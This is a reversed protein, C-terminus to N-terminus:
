PAFTRLAERVFDAVEARNRKRELSSLSRQRNMYRSPVGRKLLEPYGRDYAWKGIFVVAKPELLDLATRFHSNVCQDILRSGPAANDVTRCRVLNCYAIQDLTLGTESLPFYSGHVPWSPVFKRTTKYLQDYSALDQADRVRRLAATYNRDNAQLQQNPQSPNQGVLLVRTSWYLDGIFGPQPVNELDDRLLKRSGAHSCRDCALVDVFHKTIEFKNM